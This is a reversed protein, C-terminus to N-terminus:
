GALGVLHESGINSAFISAGVVFWGLHRGALFYDDASSKDKKKVAWWSIGAIVAFYFLIIIWDLTTLYSQM